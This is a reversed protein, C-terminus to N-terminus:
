AYHTQRSALSCPLKPKFNKPKLLCMTVWNPTMQRNIILILTVNEVINFLNKQRKDEQPHKSLSKVAGCQASWVFDISVKKKAQISLFLVFDSCIHWTIRTHSLHQGVKCYYEYAWHVSEFYYKFWWSKFISFKSHVSWDPHRFSKHSQWYVIENWCHTRPFSQKTSWYSLKLVTSLTNGNISIKTENCEIWNSLGNILRQMRKHTILSRSYTHVGHFKFWFEPDAHSQRLVANSNSKRRLWNPHLTALFMM